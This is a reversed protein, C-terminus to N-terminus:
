PRGLLLPVQRPPKPPVDMVLPGPSLPGDTEQERLQGPVRTCLDGARLILHGRRSRYGVQRLGEQRQHRLRAAYRLAIRIAQGGDARSGPKPVREGPLFPELRATVLRDV